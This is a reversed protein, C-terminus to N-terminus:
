RSPSCRLRRQLMQRQILHNRAQMREMGTERMVAVIASEPPTM